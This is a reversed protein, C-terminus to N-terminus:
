HVEYKCRREMKEIIRKGYLKLAVNFSEIRLRRAIRMVRAYAVDYNIQKSM